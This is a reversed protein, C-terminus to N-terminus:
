WGNCRGWVDVIEDDGDVVFYWPHGAGAICAHNPLVRVKQGVRFPVEGAEVNVIDSGEWGSAAEPMLVGHEQSVKGVVWGSRSPDGWGSKNARLHQPDLDWAHIAGFGSYRPCPERGLALTGAAILAQPPDRHPYVSTVEALVTFAIDPISLSSTNEQISSPAAQTSLQQLDLFPYVGAHLELRHHAEGRVTDLTRKLTKAVKLEAAHVGEMLNKASTATPTAGVSLVLPQMLANSEVQGRVVREAALCGNIEDLLTQMANEADRGAYSHSAHSYIGLFNCKGAQHAVVTAQALSSFEASEAPLGARHTGTDIKLFVSPPRTFSTLHELHTPNDVMIAITGPKRFAEAYKDLVPISSPPLPM